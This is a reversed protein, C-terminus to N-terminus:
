FSPGTRCIADSAVVTRKRRRAYRIVTVVLPAVVRHAGGAAPGDHHRQCPRTSTSPSATSSTIRLCHHGVDQRWCYWGTRCSVGMLSVCARCSPRAQTQRTRFHDAKLSRWLGEYRETVGKSAPRNGVNLQAASRSRRLSCANFVRVPADLTVTFFSSRCVAATFGFPSLL